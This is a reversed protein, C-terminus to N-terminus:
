EVEYAYAGNARRHSRLSKAVCRILGSVCAAEIQEDVFEGPTLRMWKKIQAATVPAKRPSRVGRVYRVIEGRCAKAGDVKLCPDSYDIAHATQM